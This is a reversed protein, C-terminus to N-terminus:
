LSYGISISHNRFKSDSPIYLNRPTSYQFHVLFQNIRIGVGGRLGFGSVINLDTFEPNEFNYEADFDWDTLVGLDFFPRIQSGFVFYKRYGLLFEISEYELSMFPSTNTNSSLSKFENSNFSQYSFEGVLSANRLHGPIIYEFEISGKFLSQDAFTYDLQFNSSGTTILNIGPDFLSHSNFQIGAKLTINLSRIDPDFYSVAKKNSCENFKLIQNYLDRKKYKLKQDLISTDSCINSSDLQTLYLKYEEIEGLHSIYKKFVLQELEENKKAIFYKNQKQTKYRYLSVEGKILVEVLSSIPKFIPLSDNTLEATSNSFDDLLLGHSEFRIQGPIEFSQIEEVAVRKITDNTKFDILDPILEWNKM